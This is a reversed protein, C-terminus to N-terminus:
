EKIEHEYFDARLYAQEASAGSNTLTLLYITGLKLRWEWDSDELLGGAQVTGKFYFKTLSLGGSIGTPNSKLISNYAKSSGRNRNLAALVAAGTTLTPAETLEIIGDDGNYFKFKKLCVVHTAPVNIEIYLKAAAGLAVNAVEASFLEGGHILNHENSIVPIAAHGFISKIKEHM